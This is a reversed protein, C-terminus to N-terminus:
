AVLLEGSLLWMNTGNSYVLYTGSIFLSGKPALPSITVRSPLILEKPALVDASIDSGTTM